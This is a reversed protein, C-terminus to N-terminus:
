ESEEECETQENNRAEHDLSELLDRRKWGFDLQDASDKIRLYYTIFIDIGDHFSGYPEQAFVRVLPSAHDIVTHSAIFHRSYVKHRPVDSLQRNIRM